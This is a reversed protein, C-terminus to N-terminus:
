SALAERALAVASDVSLEAGDHIATAYASDDLGARLAERTRDVELTEVQEMAVGAEAGVAAFAGLLRAGRAANGSLADLYAALHISSLVDLRMGLEHAEILGAAAAARAEDPEGLEVAVWALGISAGAAVHRDGVAAALAKAGAFRRRAEDFDAAALNALGLNHWLGREYWGGGQAVCLALAEEYAARGADIDRNEGSELHVNGLTTLAMTLRPADQARRARIVSSEVVPRAEEPWGQLLVLAGLENELESRLGEDLDLDLASRVWGAGEAPDGRFYWHFFMAACLKAVGEADEVRRLTGLAARMNAEDAAFLEFEYQPTANM